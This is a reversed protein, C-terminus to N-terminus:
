RGNTRLTDTISVGSVQDVFATSSWSVDDIGTRVESHVSLDLYATMNKHISWEIPNNEVHEEGTSDEM